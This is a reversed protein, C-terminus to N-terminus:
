YQVDVLRTNLTIRTRRSGWVLCLVCSVVVSSSPEPVPIVRISTALEWTIAPDAVGFIQWDDGHPATSMRRGFPTPGNVIAAVYFPTFRGNENEVGFPCQYVVMYEAGAMLDIGFEYFDITVIHNDQSFPLFDSRSFTRTGLKSIPIGADATYVSIDLPPPDAITLGEGSTIITKVSSLTGSSTPIFSQGRSVNIFSDRDPITLGVEMWINSSQQGDPINHAVIVEAQASASLLSVLVLGSYFQHVNVIMM